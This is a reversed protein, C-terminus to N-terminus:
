IRATTERLVLSTAVSLHKTQSGPKLISEVAASAAMQGLFQPPQSVTTLGIHQAYEHDDFGIVSIDEPVRLGKQRIAKMAGIAMEDSHCFVATPLKKRDLFSRMAIEATQVNYDGRIDNEPNWEINAEQMAKIFGLTRNDSVNFNMAIDRAGSLIAIDKHGYDILHNTAIKGGLVDDVMVSNYNEHDFGLLTLPIGLSLLSEFDDDEVPLSIIILADVKERLLRQQFIRKRGEVESFNFLMLDIGAERLSQEIGNIAQAFYWRSLYPTIVGVVNSKKRVELPLLDPRVPYDLALAADVVKKRTKYNVHHLGRLARSVTAPSVGAEEAIEAIGSM